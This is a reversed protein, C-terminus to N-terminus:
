KWTTNVSGASIAAMANVL